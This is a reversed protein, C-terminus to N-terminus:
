RRAVIGSTLDFRLTHDEILSTAAIWMSDASVGTARRALAKRWEGIRMSNGGAENLVDLAVKRRESLSGSVVRNGTSALKSPTQSPTM